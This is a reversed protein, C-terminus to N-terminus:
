NPQALLLAEMHSAANHIRREMGHISSWFEVYEPRSISSWLEELHALRDGPSNGALICANLAGISVGAIWDPEMGSERLAQYAGIHYAGLAGGGQLVLVVMPRPESGSTTKKVKISRKKTRPASM